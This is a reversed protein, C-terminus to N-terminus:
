TPSTIETIDCSSLFFSFLNFVLSPFLHHSYVHNHALLWHRVELIDLVGHMSVTDPFITWMKGAIAENQQLAQRLILMVDEFRSLQAYALVQFEDWFVVPLTHMSFVMIFVFFM